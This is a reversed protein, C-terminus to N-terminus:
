HHIFIDIGLFLNIYLQSRNGLTDCVCSWCWSGTSDLISQSGSRSLHSWVLCGTVSDIYILEKGVNIGTHACIKHDTQLMIKNFDSVSCTNHLYQSM